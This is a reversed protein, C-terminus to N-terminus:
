VEEIKWEGKRVKQALVFRFPFMSAAVRPKVLSMEALYAGKVEHCELLSKDTLVLFDPEYFTGDALRLKIAEFKYWRIDGRALALDLVDEAYSQETKNMTGAKMRGLARFRQLSTVVM